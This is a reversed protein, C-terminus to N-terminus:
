NKENIDGKIKEIEEMIDKPTLWIPLYESLRLILSKLSSNEKILKNILEAQKDLGAWMNDFDSQKLTVSSNNTYENKISNCLTKLEEETMQSLLKM